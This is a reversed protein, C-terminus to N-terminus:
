NLAAVGINLYLAFACWALYPAFLIGALDDLRRFDAWALAALAILLGLWVAAAWYLGLGFFLGPWLANVALQAAYLRLARRREAAPQRRLWVRWAAAGTLIYLATWVVPFVWGPPTLPPKELPGFGDMSGGLLAGLGGAALALLISVILARRNKMYIVGGM